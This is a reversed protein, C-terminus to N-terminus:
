KPQNSAKSQSDEWEDLKQITLNPLIEKINAKIAWNALPPNDQKSLNKDWNTLKLKTM